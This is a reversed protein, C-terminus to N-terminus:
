GGAAAHWVGYCATILLSSFGVIQKLMTHRSFRKTLEKGKPQDVELRTLFRWTIMGLLCVFFWFIAVAQMLEFGFVFGTTIFVAFFFAMFGVVLAGYKRLVWLNNRLNIDVLTELDTMFQGGARNAQRVDHHGIGITFHTMQAWVVALFIWYWISLFSGSNLLDSILLESQDM